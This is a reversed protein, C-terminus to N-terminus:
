RRGRFPEMRGLGEGEVFAILLYGQPKIVDRFGELVLPIDSEEIHVLLAISVIGDFRVIERDIKRCDMVFFSGSPNRERAIMISKESFDIGTVTAGFEAMRMSEHGTGCGADM